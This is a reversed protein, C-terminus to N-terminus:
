RLPLPQQVAKALQEKITKLLSALRIPKALM